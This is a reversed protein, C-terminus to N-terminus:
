AMILSRSVVTGRLRALLLGLAVQQHGAGLEVGVVQEAVGGQVGEGREHEGFAGLAPRDDHVVAVLVVVAGFEGPQDVLEAALM